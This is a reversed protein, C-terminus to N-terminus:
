RGARDAPAPQDGPGPGARRRDLGAALLLRGLAEAPALPRHGAAHGHLPLFFQGDPFRGALQHAAHVAFATTGVGARGGIAYVGIVGGAAAAGPVLRDLEHARGTFPSADRPLAAGTAAGGPPENM